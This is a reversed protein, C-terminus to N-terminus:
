EVGNNNAFLNQSKQKDVPTITVKELKPEPFFLDTLPSITMRTGAPISVRPELEFGQAALEASVASFESSFNSAASAQAPSDTSVSLQAVSALTALLLSNSYKDMFRTDVKGSLGSRGQVDLGEADMIMAIGDPRELRTWVIELREEGPESLPEYSGVAKSGRPILVTRGHTGYVDQNVIAQVKQSGIDSRISSELTIPIINTVTLVRTLDVPYSPINKELGLDSYDKDQSVDITKTPFSKFHANSPANEVKFIKHPKRRKELLQRRYIENNDITPEPLPTFLDRPDLKPEPKEPEVYVTKVEVKPKFGTPNLYDDPLTKKAFVADSSNDELIVDDSDLAFLMTSVIITVIVTLVGMAIFPQPNTKVETKIRDLLENKEDFDTM